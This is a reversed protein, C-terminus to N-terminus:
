RDSRSFFNRLLQSGTAGASGTAEDRWRSTEKNHQKYDQRLRQARAADSRAAALRASQDGDPLRLPVAFVVRSVAQSRSDMGGEAGTGWVRIFEKGDASSEATVAVDFDVRVFGFEPLMSLNSGPDGRFSANVNEGIETDQAKAVGSLIQGLTESIFQELDM